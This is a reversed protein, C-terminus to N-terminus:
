HITTSSFLTVPELNKILKKYVKDVKRKATSKLTRYPTPDLLNVFLGTMQKVSSMQSDPQDVFGKGNDDRHIPWIQMEDGRGANRTLLMVEKRDSSMSPPVNMNGGVWAEATLMYNTASYRELLKRLAMTVLMKQDDDDIPTQLVYVKGQSEFIISPVSSLNSSLRENLYQQQLEQNSLKM